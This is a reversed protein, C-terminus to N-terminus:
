RKGRPRNDLAFPGPGLGVLLLLGGAVAMNRIFLEYDAGRDVPNGIRWYDHLFATVVVTFGFLLLAGQRTHYGLVLALGGLIMVTLALALLLNANPIHRLHMLDVTGEWTDIRWRVEGLFFWAILLRGVLPSIREAISM